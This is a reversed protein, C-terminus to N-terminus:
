FETQLPVQAHAFCSLLKNLSAAGTHFEFIMQVSPPKCGAAGERQCFIIKQHVKVAKVCMHYRIGFGERSDLSKQLSVPVPIPCPSPVRPCTGQGM